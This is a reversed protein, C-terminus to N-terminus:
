RKLTAIISIVKVFHYRGYSHTQWLFESMSHRLDNKTAWEALFLRGGQGTPKEEGGVSVKYVLCGWDSKVVREDKEIPTIVKIYIIETAHNIEKVVNYYCFKM